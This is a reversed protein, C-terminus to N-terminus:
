GLWQPNHYTGDFNNSTKYVEYKGHQVAEATKALLAEVESAGMRHFSRAANMALLLTEMSDCATIVMSTPLLM